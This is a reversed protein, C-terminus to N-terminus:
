IATTTPGTIPIEDDGTGVVVDRVGLVVGSVVSFALWVGVVVVIVRVTKNWNRWGKV